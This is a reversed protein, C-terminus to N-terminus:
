VQFKLWIWLVKDENSNKLWQVVVRSNSARTHLRRPWPRWCFFKWPPPPAVSFFVSFYCFLDFFLVILGRGPHPLALSFLFRFSAFFALFYWTHFDLPALAGRGGAVSAWPRLRSTTYGNLYSNCIPSAGCRCQYRIMESSWRSSQLVQLLKKYISIVQEQRIYKLDVPSTAM